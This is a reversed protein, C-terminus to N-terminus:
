RSNKRHTQCFSCDRQKSHKGEDRRSHIYTHLDCRRPLPSIQALRANPLKRRDMEIENKRTITSECGQDALCPAFITTKTCCALKQLRTIRQRCGYCQTHGKINNADVLLCHRKSPGNYQTTCEEIVFWPVKKDYIKVFLNHASQVAAQFLCM